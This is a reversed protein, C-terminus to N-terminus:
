KVKAIHTVKSFELEGAGGFLKRQQVMTKQLPVLRQWGRGAMWVLTRKVARRWCDLKSEIVSSEQWPCHHFGTTEAKPLANYHGDLQGAIADDTATM